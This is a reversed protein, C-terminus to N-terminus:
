TPELEIDGLDLDEAAFLDEDIPVEDEEEEEEEAEEIIGSDNGTMHSANECIAGGVAGESEDRTAPSHTCLIQLSIPAHLCIFLM